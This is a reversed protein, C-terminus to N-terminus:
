LAHCAPLSPYKKKYKIIVENFKHEIKPNYGKHYLRHAQLLYRRGLKHNSDIIDEARLIFKIIRNEEGLVRNKELVEDIDLDIM